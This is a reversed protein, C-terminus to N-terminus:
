RYEMWIELSGGPPMSLIADGHWLLDGEGHFPCSSTESQYRDGDGTTTLVFVFLSCTSNPPVPSPTTLM